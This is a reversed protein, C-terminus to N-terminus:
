INPMNNIKAGGFCSVLELRRSWKSIALKVLNPIGAHKGSKGGFQM